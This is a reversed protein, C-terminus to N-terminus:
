VWTVCFFVKRMPSVVTKTSVRSEFVFCGCFRKWFKRWDYMSNVSRISIWWDCGAFMVYLLHSFLTSKSGIQWYCVLSISIKSVNGRTNQKVFDRILSFPPLPTVSLFWLKTSLIIQNRLKKEKLQNLSNNLTDVHRPVRIVIFFQKHWTQKM